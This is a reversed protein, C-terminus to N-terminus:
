QQPRNIFFYSIYRKKDEREVMKIEKVRRTDRVTKEDELAHEVTIEYFAELGRFSKLTDRLLEPIKVVITKITDDNVCSKEEGLDKYLAFPSVKMAKMSNTFMYMGSYIRKIDKEALFPLFYRYLVTKLYYVVAYEVLEYYKNKQENIEEEGEVQPLEKEIMKKLEQRFVEIFKQRVIRQLECLLKPGDENEVKKFDFRKETQEESVFLSSLAYTAPGSSGIIGVRFYSSEEAEEPNERWLILQAIENHRGIRGFQCVNNNRALKKNIIIGKSEGAKNIVKCGACIQTKPQHTFIGDNSYTISGSEIKEIRAFGKFCKKCDLYLAYEDEGLFAIREHIININEENVFDPSVAKIQEFIYHPLSKDLPQSESGVCIFNLNKASPDGGKEITSVLSYEGIIKRKSLYQSLVSVTDFDWKSMALRPEENKGKENRHSLYISLQNYRLMPTWFRDRYYSELIRTEERDKNRKLEGINVREDGSYKDFAFLYEKLQKKYYAYKDNPLMLKSHREIGSQAAALQEYFGETDNKRLIAMWLGAVDFVYRNEKEMENNGHRKETDTKEHMVTIAHVDLGHAAGLWFLSQLCNNSVDVVIENTHRLTRLMVYYLSFAGDINKLLNEDLLNIMRDVFVPNVPYIRMARNTIHNKVFREIGKKRSESLGINCGETIHTYGLLETWDDDFKIKEEAALFTAQNTGIQIIEGVSYAIDLKEKTDKESEPIVNGQVLVGVREGCFCEETKMKRVVNHYFNVICRGAQEENLFGDMTYVVLTNADYKVHNYENKLLDYITKGIKEKYGELIEHYPFRNYQSDSFGYEPNVAKEFDLYETKSDKKRYRIGYYEFLDKRWPYNGIHHEIEGQKVEDFKFKMTEKLLDPVVMKYFSESYCIPLIMKGLAVAMGFEYFVNANQNTVDVVVLDAIQMQQCIRSCVVYNSAPDSDSRVVEIEKVENDKTREGDKDFASCYLKDEKFYLYKSLSEIFPRIRWKYVVDSMDSFNMVIFARIKFKNTEHLRRRELQINPQKSCHEGTMFCRRSHICSEMSTYCVNKNESIM